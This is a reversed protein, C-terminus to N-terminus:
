VREPAVDAPEPAVALGHEDARVLEVLRLRQAVADNDKAFAPTYGLAIRGLQEGARAAADLDVADVAGDRGDGLADGTQWSDEADVGVCHTQGHVDGVADRRLCDRARRELAVLDRADADASGVHDLDELRQRLVRTPLPRRASRAAARASSWCNLRERTSTP